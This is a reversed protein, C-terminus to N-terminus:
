PVPFTSAPAVCKRLRALSVGDSWHNVLLYRLAESAAIRHGAVDPHTYDAFFREKGAARYLEYLDIYPIEEAALFAGVINQYTRAERGEKVQPYLPFLLELLRFDHTESLSKLKRLHGQLVPSGLVALVLRAVM